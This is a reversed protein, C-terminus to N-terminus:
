PVADAGLDAPAARIDGDIDYAALGSLDAAPDAAGLAPSAPMLHLNGTTTNAFLPDMSTNGTGGPVTGPRVISYAHMCTGGVQEMNTLTGNQSLINNRATFTGAVCHIAAGLGDQVQNKNFSNFELRNSANQATTISVGGTGGAQNGNNFFVNGVIAFTGSTVTIGGGTNGNITSQSVTLTGGTATIGGGANGNITSQSVTLTGGTASSLIGDDGGNEIKVRTLSVSGTAGAPIYVVPNSGTANAGELSLDYVSVKSTGKVTLLSCQSMATLAVGSDALLMVDQDEITVAEAVSNKLKVYPRHTALADAVEACPSTRTCDTNAGNTTVYAVQDEAACSGDPLCVNSACEGHAVCARCAHESEDCVPSAASCAATNSATCQVCTGSAVDCAQGPCDDDVTCGPSADPQPCDAPTPVQRCYAPNEKVCGAGLLVVAASMLVKSVVVCDKLLM